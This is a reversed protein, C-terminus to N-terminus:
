YWLSFVIEGRYVDWVVVTGSSIGFALLSACDSTASVVINDTCPWVVDPKQELDSLLFM